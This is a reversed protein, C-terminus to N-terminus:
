ATPSSAAPANHAEVWSAAMLRQEPSDPVLASANIMQYPQPDPLHFSPRETSTDALVPYALRHSEPFIQCAGGLKLGWHRLVGRFRGYGLIDTVDQHTTPDYPAKSISSSRLSSLGWPTLVKTPMGRWTLVLIGVQTAYGGTHQDFRPLYQDRATTWVSAGMSCVADIGAHVGLLAHYHAYADPDTPLLPLETLRPVDM